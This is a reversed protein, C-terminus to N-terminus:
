GEYIIRAITIAIRKKADKVIGLATRRVARAGNNNETDATFLQCSLRAIESRATNVSHYSLMVIRAITVVMALTPITEIFTIVVIKVSLMITLANRM